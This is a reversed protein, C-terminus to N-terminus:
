EAPHRSKEDPRRGFWLAVGWGLALLLLPSIYLAFFLETTM